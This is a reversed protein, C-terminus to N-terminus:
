MREMIFIKMESIDESLELTMKGAELKIIHAVFRSTDGSGGFSMMCIIKKDAEYYQYNGKLIATIDGTRSNLTGYSVTGDTEFNWIMASNRTEPLERINDRNNGVQTVKWTGIIGSSSRATFVIILIVLIIGM